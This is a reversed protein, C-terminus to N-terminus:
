KKRREKHENESRSHSKVELIKERAQRILSDDTSRAIFLSLLSCARNYNDTQAIANGWDLYFRDALLERCRTSDASIAQWMSDAAVINGERYLSMAFQEDMKCRFHGSLSDVRQRYFEAAARYRGEDVYSKMMRSRTMPFITDNDSVFHIDNWVERAEDYRGLSSYINGIIAIALREYPTDPYLEKIRSLYSIARGQSGNKWHYQALKIYGRPAFHSEPYEELIQQFSTRAAISDDLGLYCEGKLFNTLAAISDDISSADVMDLIVAAYNFAGSDMLAICENLIIGVAISTDSVRTIFREIAQVPTNLEGTKLRAMEGLYILSDYLAKNNLALKDTFEITKVYNKTRYPSSRM